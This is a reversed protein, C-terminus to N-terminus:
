LDVSVLIRRCTCHNGLHCLALQSAGFGTPFPEDSKAKGYGLTIHPSFRAFAATRAYDRIWELTSEAVADDAIMAENVDHSVLPEVERMVKEHLSQLGASNEIEIMSTYEGRSNVSVVIGAAALMGLHIDRSLREMLERVPGLRDADICGMALSIHPLCTTDGLVIESGFREVLDKNIRMARQTMERDPLLVLDVAIRSM